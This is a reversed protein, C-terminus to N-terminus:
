LSVQSLETMHRLQDRKAQIPRTTEEIISPDIPSSHALTWLIVSCRTYYSSNLEIRHQAKDVEPIKLDNIIKLSEDRLELFYRLIKQLEPNM